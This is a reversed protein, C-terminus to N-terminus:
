DEVAHDLLEHDLSSVECVEISRAALGDVALLEVILVELYFVGLREQEGHCIRTWTHIDWSFPYQPHQRLICTGIPRL